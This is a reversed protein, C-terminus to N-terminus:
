PAALTPPILCPSQIGRRVWSSFAHVGPGHTAYDIAALKTDRVELYFGRLGSLHAAQKFRCLRHGSLFARGDTVHLTIRAVLGWPATITAGAEARVAAAGHRIRKRIRAAAGPAFPRTSVRPKWHMDGWLRTGGLQGVPPLRKPLLPCHPLATARAGCPPMTMWQM